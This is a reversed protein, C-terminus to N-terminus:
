LAALLATGAGRALDFLGPRIVDNWVAGGIRKLTSGLTKLWDKFSHPGTFYESNVSAIAIPRLVSAALPVQSQLCVSDNQQFELSYAIDVTLTFSSSSTPQVGLFSTTLLVIPVTEDSTPYYVNGTATNSVFPTGNTGPFVQDLAAELGGAPIVPFAAAQSAEYLLTRIEALASQQSADMTAAAIQVSQNITQLTTPVDFAWNEDTQGLYRIECGPSDQTTTMHKYKRAFTEMNAFTTYQEPSADTVITMPTGSGALINSPGTNSQFGYMDLSSFANAPYNVRCVGATYRCPVSNSVLSGYIGGNVTLYIPNWVQSFQLAGSRIFSPQPYVIQSNFSTGNWQQYGYAYMGIIAEGNDLVSGGASLTSGPFPVIIVSNTPYWQSTIQGSTFAVAAPAPITIQQTSRIPICSTPTGGGPGRSCSLNQEDLLYKDPELLLAAFQAVEEPMGGRQSRPMQTQKKATKTKAQKQKAQQSM